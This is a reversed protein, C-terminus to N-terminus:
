VRPDARAQGRHRCQQLLRRHPRIGARRTAVYAAVDSSKSVDAVHTEVRVGLKEIAGRRAKLGEANIDVLMIDAGATALSTAAAHGIMGAGGTMVAVKGKMSTSMDEERPYPIPSVADDASVVNRAFGAAETGERVEAPTLIATMPMTGFVKAKIVLQNGDREIRSVTM